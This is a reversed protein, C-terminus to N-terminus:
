GASGSVGAEGGAAGYYNNELVLRYVSPLLYYRYSQKRSIRARIETASIEIIPTSFFTAKKALDPAWVGLEVLDIADGERRMVGVGDCEAILEAPNHWAPLDRLSDGGVLLFLAAAPFQGRLLRVTDVSYHPGPRDLEVRSLKFRANQEIAALVLDLRQQVPSVPQGIKHPPDPTVVWLVQDLNLQDLAEAALILHGIHPPDFTGGFIGLRM